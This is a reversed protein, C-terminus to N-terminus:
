TSEDLQSVKIPLIEVGTVTARITLVKPKEGANQLIHKKKICYQRLNQWVFARKKDIQHCLAQIGKDNEKMETM